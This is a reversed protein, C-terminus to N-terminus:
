DAPRIGKCCEGQKALRGAWCAKVLGPLFAMGCQVFHPAAIASLAPKQGLQPAVWPAAAEDGEAAEV